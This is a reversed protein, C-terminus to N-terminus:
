TGKVRPQTASALPPGQPAQEASQCLGSSSQLLVPSGNVRVRLASTLWRISVCPQPKTGVTFACGAVVFQDALTAVAMGSAKVRVNSSIDTAQGGHPCSLTAGVHLALDSM